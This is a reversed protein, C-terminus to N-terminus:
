LLSCVLNMFVDSCVAMILAPDAVSKDFVLSVLVLWLPLRDHWEVIGRRHKKTM